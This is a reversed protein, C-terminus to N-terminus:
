FQEPLKKPLTGYLRENLKNFYKSWHTTPNTGDLHATLFRVQSAQTDGAIARHATTSISCCVVTINSLSIGYRNHIIDIARLLSGGRIAFTDAIVVQKSGIATPMTCMFEVLEDQVYDHFLGLHGIHHTPVVARAGEVMVLGSRLLAVLVPWNTTKPSEASGMDQRPPAFNLDRTAEVVLLLGLERILDAYDRSNLSPNRLWSIKHRVLPHDVLEVNGSM